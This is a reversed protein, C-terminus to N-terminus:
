AVSRSSSLAPTIKSLSNEFHMKSACRLLLAKQHGCGARHGARATDAEMGAEDLPSLPQQPFMAPSARCPAASCHGAKTERHGSSHPVRRSSCCLSTEPCPAPTSRSPQAPVLIHPSPERKEKAACQSHQAATFVWIGRQCSEPLQAWRPLCTSQGPSQM